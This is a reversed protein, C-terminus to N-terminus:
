CNEMMHESVDIRRKMKLNKLFGRTNRFEKSHLPIPSNMNMEFNLIEGEVKVGRIISDEEVRFGSIAYLTEISQEFDNLDESLFKHNDSKKDYNSMQKEEQKKFSHEGRGLKVQPQIKLLVACEIFVEVSRRSQGFNDAAICRIATLQTSTSWQRRFEARQKVRPGNGDCGQEGDGVGNGPRGSKRVNLRERGVAKNNNVEKADGPRYQKFKYREAMPNLKPKLQRQIRGTLKELTKTSSEDALCLGRLLIYTENDLLTIFLAVKREEQVNNVIFFQGLREPWASWDETPANAASAAAKVAAAALDAYKIAVEQLHNVRDLKLQQRQQYIIKEQEELAQHRMKLETQMAALEAPTTM